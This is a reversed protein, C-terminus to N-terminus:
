IAISMMLPYRDYMRKNAIDIYEANLEIGIFNREHKLCALGTTGAGSFPDLVTGGAPCGARIALEPIEIPFTAFHAGSFPKPSITWVSRKNRMVGCQQTKEMLDWRDNFGAHRRGHGRQKDQRAAEQAETRRGFGQAHPSKQRGNPGAHIGPEKIADADYFYKASKTLMFVYEHAKTCRDRVSEPMPNPKAWIIDQRLWWGDSQLAFAARWPIGVLDKVKLSGLLPRRGATTGAGGCPIGGGLTGYTGNAGSAASNYSDGINLWCTGDPRLVRRVEAFVASLHEVYMEPTPELGLCGVWGDPWKTPPLGYDRLGWYPPSTVCCHVSSDPMTRLVTLADGHHIM